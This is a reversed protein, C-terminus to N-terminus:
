LTVLCCPSVRAAMLTDDKEGECWWRAAAQSWATRSPHRRYAVVRPKRRREDDLLPMRADRARIRPKGRVPDGARWRLAVEVNVHHADTGVDPSGDRHRSTANGDRVSKPTGITCPPPHRRPWCVRRVGVDGRPAGRGHRCSWRRSIRTPRM